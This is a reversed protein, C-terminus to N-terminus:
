SCIRSISARRRCWRLIVAGLGMMAISVLAIPRSPEPVPAPGLQGFQAEFGSTQPSGSGSILPHSFGTNGLVVFSLSDGAIVSVVGSFPVPPGGAMDPTVTSNLIFDGSTSATWVIEMPGFGPTLTLQDPSWALDTSAGSAEQSSWGGLTLGSLIGNGSLGFSIGGTSGTGSDYASVSWSGEPASVSMQDAHLGTATALLVVVALCSLARRDMGEVM